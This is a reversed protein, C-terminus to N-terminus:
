SSRALVMLFRQLTVQTVVGGEEFVAPLTGLSEVTTETRVNEDPEILLMVGKRGPVPVGVIVEAFGGSAMAAGALQHSRESFEDQRQRTMRGANYPESSLGM